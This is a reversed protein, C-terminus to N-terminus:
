AITHPLFTNNLACFLPRNRGAKGALAQSQASGVALVEGAAAIVRQRHADYKRRNNCTIAAM